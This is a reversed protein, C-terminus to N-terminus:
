KVFFLFMGLSHLHVILPCSKIFCRSIWRRGDEYTLRTYHCRCTEQSMIMTQQEKGYLVCLPNYYLESGNVTAPGRQIKVLKGKSSKCLYRLYPSGMFGKSYILFCRYGNYIKIFVVDNYMYKKNRM